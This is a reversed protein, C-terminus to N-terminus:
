DADYERHCHPCAGAADLADCYQVVRKEYADQAEQTREIAAKFDAKAADRAARAHELAAEPTM